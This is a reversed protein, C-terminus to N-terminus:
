FEVDAEGKFVIIQLVAEDQFWFILGHKGYYIRSTDGKQYLIREDKIGHLDAAQLIKLPSGYVRFVDDMTSTMSIGTKLQGQYGQNLHVESLLLQRKFFGFDVGKGPYRLMKEERRTAQGFKSQIFDMTCYNAGIVVKRNTVKGAARQPSTTQKLVYYCPKQGRITVDGSIWEFFMYLNGDINKVTYFAPRSQGAEVKGPVWSHQFRSNNNFSFWVRKNNQFELGTLYLSDRWFKQSPDFQDMERVFDVSVWKGLVNSNNVIGSDSEDSQQESAEAALDMNERKLVYRWASQKGEIVDVTMWDVFLYDQGELTKITYRASYGNVTEIAAEGFSTQKVVNNNFSWYVTSPEIFQLARLILTKKYQRQDPVFDDTKPVYDVAIWKGLVTPEAAFSSQISNKQNIHSLNPEAVEQDQKVGAAVSVNPEVPKV